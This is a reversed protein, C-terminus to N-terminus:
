PYRVPEIFSTRESSAFFSYVAQCERIGAGSQQNEARSEACEVQDLIEAAPKVDDNDTWAIVEKKRREKGARRDTRDFEPADDLGDAICAFVQLEVVSRRLGEIELSPRDPTVTNLGAVDKSDVVVNQDNRYSRDAIRKTNRTNGLVCEKELLQVVSAREAV